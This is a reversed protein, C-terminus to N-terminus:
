CTICNKKRRKRRNKLQLMHQSVNQFKGKLRIKCLRESIPEFGLLFKRMQKTMFFGTGYQGRNENDSGSYLISYDKKDIQGKGNWRIEQLAVVDIKYKLLEMSLEKMKGPQLLTRINWIALFLDLIRRKIRKDHKTQKGNYGVPKHEYEPRTVIIKESNPSNVRREVGLM